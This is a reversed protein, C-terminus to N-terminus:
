KMGNFWQIALIIADEAAGIHDKGEITILDVNSKGNTEFYNLARVSNFYPVTTDADGHILRVPAPPVWDLLENLGIAQTM